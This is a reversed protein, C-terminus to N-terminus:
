MVAFTKLQDAYDAQIFITKWDGGQAWKVLSRLGLVKMLEM